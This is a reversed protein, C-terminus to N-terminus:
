TLSCPTQLFASRVQQPLSPGWTPEPRGAAALTLRGSALLVWVSVAATVAAAVAVVARLQLAPRAKAPWLPSPRSASFQVQLGQLARLLWALAQPGVPLCCGGQRQWASHERM